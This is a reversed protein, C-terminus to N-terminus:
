WFPREPHLRIPKGPRPRPPGSPASRGAMRAVGAPGAAAGALDLGFGAPDDRFTRGLEDWGGYRDALAQGAADATQRQDGFGLDSGPIRMSEPLGVAENIKQGTGVALKGLGEATQMPNSVADWIGTATREASEPINGITEGMYDALRGGQEAAWEGARPLYSWDMDYSTRAPPMAPDTQRQPTQQAPPGGMHPQPTEGTDAFQWRNATEAEYDAKGRAMEGQLEARRRQIAAMRASQGPYATEGGPTAQGQVPDVGVLRAAHATQAQPSYDPMSPNGSRRAREAAIRQLLDAM